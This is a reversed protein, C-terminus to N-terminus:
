KDQWHFIKKLNLKSFINNTFTGVKDAIAFTGNLSHLKYNIDDLSKNVKDIMFIGKISMVILAILLSIILVYVVIMFVVNDM